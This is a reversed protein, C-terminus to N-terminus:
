CVALLIFISIMSNGALGATSKEQASSSLKVVACAWPGALKIYIVPKQHLSHCCAESLANTDIFLKDGSVPPHSDHNTPSLFLFGVPFCCILTSKREMELQPALLFVHSLLDDLELGPGLSLGALGLGNKVSMALLHDEFHGKVIGHSCGEEQGWASAKSKQENGTKSKGGVEHTLFFWWLIVHQLVRLARRLFSHM